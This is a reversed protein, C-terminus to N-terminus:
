VRSRSRPAHKRTMAERESDRRWYSPNKVKVWGRENSGYRSDHRKAVVGELGHRCVADFLAHGDEFGVSTSWAPGELELRELTARRELYPHGVVDAGEVRLVDFVVFTLAISTDRHLVRRCVSPFHPDIGQWAVLEGDLVLGGPIGSLEPVLGSM